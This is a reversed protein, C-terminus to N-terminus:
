GAAPQSGTTANPRNGSQQERVRRKPECCRWVCCSVLICISARTYPVWTGMFICISSTFAPAEESRQEGQRRANLGDEGLELAERAELAAHGAQLSQQIAVAVHIERVVQATLM